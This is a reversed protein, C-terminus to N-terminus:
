DVKAVPPGSRPVLNKCIRTIYTWGPPSYERRLLLKIQPSFGIVDNTLFYNDFVASQVAYSQVSIGGFIALMSMSHFMNNIKRMHDVIHSYSGYLLHTIWWPLGVFAASVPGTWATAYKLPRQAIAGGQDLFLKKTPNGWTIVESSMLRVTIESKRSNKM